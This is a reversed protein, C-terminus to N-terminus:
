GRRMLHQEGRWISYATSIPASRWPHPSSKRSAVAAKQSTSYISIDGLNCIVGYREYLLRLQSSNGLVYGETFCRNHRLLNQHSVAVVWAGADAADCLQEEVWALIRATVTGPAEATNADVLLVRLNPALEAVYSLSGGDRSIAEDYGFAGYIESFQKATVSEAPRYGDGAFEAAMPNELDHNGPLVFVPIGADEVQRLAAAVAQHSLAEGNFTLDGPLILADPVERIVQQTFAELLEKSYATMKGDANRIVRQFCTGQDTLEPALHHLDPAIILTVPEVPAFDATSVAPAREKAVYWLAALVWCLSLLLFLGRGKM